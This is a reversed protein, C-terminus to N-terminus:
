PGALVRLNGPPVPPAPSQMVTLTQIQVGAERGVIILQHVGANLPVTAVVFQNSDFTGNGRWGAMLSEFGSTLPIDWIMTPDQPQTDFNWYISNAATSPANVLMEVSYLGSTTTAFSYIAQGGNTVGTEVPQSIYGSQLVFPATISGDGAQFTAAGGSIVPIASGTVGATAGGGGSFSVVAFNSGAVIPSYGVVVTQRQGAALSYSGGSAISFPAAVTASGSLVGAGVNQVTFVQSTTSGTVIAGFALNTPAVSILPPLVGYAVGVVHCVAGGGGTFTVSGSNTGALTSSYRVTVVQTQMSNLSYSGGAAISFPAVTSAAGVLVGGGSNWVQVQLNVTTNTQVTGFNLSGPAISIVPNTVVGAYEYAGIDWLGDAGRTNGDPDINYPSGLNTGKDKPYKSGVTSVLHFNGSSVFPNSGSSISHAGSVSGSSFEYDQTSPIPGGINCNWYINNESASGAAWAGGGSGGYVNYLINYFTNNYCFLQYTTFPEFVRAVGAPPYSMIAPDHWVCGYMYLPGTATQYPMIGEIGWNYFECYRWTLNGGGALECLNAHAADSSYVNDYFRCHDWTMGTATNILILDVASHIDCNTFLVNPGVDLYNNGDYGRVSLACIYSNPNSNNNTNMGGDIDVNAVTINSQGGSGFGFEFAGPYTAGSLNANVLHIGGTVRGDITMCSGAYHQVYQWCEGSPPKILVTSDFSSNWGAASTPVSDTALVRKVLIPSAATGSKTVIVQTTYTGGALWITDGPSVSGWAIGGADWSNNWDAGTKTGTGGPRVYFNASLAIDTGAMLCLFLVVFSLRGVARVL